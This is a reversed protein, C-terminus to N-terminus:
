FSSKPPAAHAPIALKTVSPAHSLRNSDRDGHKVCLLRERFTLSQSLIVKWFNDKVDHYEVSHNEAAVRWRIDYIEKSQSASWPLSWTKKVGKRRARLMTRPAQFLIRPHSFPQHPSRLSYLKIGLCQNKLQTIAIIQFTKSSHFDKSVSEFIFKAWFRRFVELSCKLVDNVTIENWRFCGSNEAANIDPTADPTHDRRTRM